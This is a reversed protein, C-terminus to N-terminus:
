SSQGEPFTGTAKATPGYALGSFTVTATCYRNRMRENASTFNRATSSGDARTAGPSVRSGYSIRLMPTRILRRAFRKLQERVLQNVRAGMSEVHRRKMYM